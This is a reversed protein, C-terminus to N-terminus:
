QLYKWDRYPKRYIYDRRNIAGCKDNILTVDKGFPSSLVESLYKGFCWSKTPISYINYSSLIVKEINKMSQFNNTFLDSFQKETSIRLSKLQPLFTDVNTFFNETLKAYRIDLDILQKCLKFCEVSGKLKTNFPLDIKLKKIAKFESITDFFQNNIIINGSFSINFKLLKICKRGILAISENIPETTRLNLELKLEKLNEFRSIYEICTKLKEETLNEFLVNLTKITQSYKDSFRIMKQVFISSIRFQLRSYIYELKPLILNDNNFLISDQTVTVKKLNPCFRIEEYERGLSLEELKHGYIRFFDLAKGNNFSNYFSKINPCYRGILSLVQPSDVSSDLAVTSIYRCKKLVSKLAKRKITSGRYLGILSDKTKKTNSRSIGIAFQKSFVLRRWQKAVCELRIKDEFTMFSLILETLDDGFRDFSDRSYQRGNSDIVINDVM